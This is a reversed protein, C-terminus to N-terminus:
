AAQKIIEVFEEKRVSAGGVLIGSIEPIALFDDANSRNVSGGYLLLSEPALPRLVALAKRTEDPSDPRAGPTTSIAWVPEYAILCMRLEESSLGAFTGAMQQKLFQEFQDDRVREGICVVPTLEHQLARKLKQNVIEESEALKWRRDSHGIIVYRVGLRALQEGTVEGTQSPEDSLAIDQAGLEIFSNLSTTNLIKAVDELYVFPPCVVISAATEGTVHGSLFDLIQEAEAPTNPLAKWNGIVYKKNSMIM